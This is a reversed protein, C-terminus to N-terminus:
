SNTYNALMTSQSEAPILEISMSRVLHVLRSDNISVVLEVIDEDTSRTLPAVWKERFTSCLSRSELGDLLVALPDHALWIQERYEM